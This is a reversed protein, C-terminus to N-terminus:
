LVGRFAAAQWRLRDTADVQLVDLLVSLMAARPVSCGTHWASVTNTSVARHRAALLQRLAAQTEIGLAARRTSLLSAFTDMCGGLPVQLVAGYLHLKNWAACLIGSYWDLIGTM